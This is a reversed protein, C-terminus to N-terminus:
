KKELERELSREAPTWEASNSRYTQRYHRFDDLCMKTITESGPGRGTYVSYAASFCLSEIRRTGGEIDGARIKKLADFTGVFTGDWLILARDFGRRYGVGYAAWAACCIAAVVVAVIIIRKM